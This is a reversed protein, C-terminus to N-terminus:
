FPFNAPLGVTSNQEGPTVIVGFPLTGEAPLKNPLTFNLQRKEVAPDRKFKFPFGSPLGVTSNQEGPTVIVGFPLTGEVPLEDPLTFNLQRREANSEDEWQFPFGNDDTSNQEGTNNVPFFPPPRFHLPRRNHPNFVPFDDVTNNNNNSIDSSQSQRAVLAPTADNRKISAPAASVFCGAAVLVLTCFSTSFM